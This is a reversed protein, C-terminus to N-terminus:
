IFFIVGKKLGHAQSIGRALELILMVGICSSCDGAGERRLLFGLILFLPMCLMRLGPLNGIEFSKTVIRACQISPLLLCCILRPNYLAHSVPNQIEQLCLM